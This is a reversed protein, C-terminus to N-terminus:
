DGQSSMQQSTYPNSVENMNWWAMSELTIFAIQQAAIIEAFNEANFINNL